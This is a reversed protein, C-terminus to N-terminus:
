TNDSISDGNIIIGNSAYWNVTTLMALNARPRLAKYYFWCKNMTASKFSWNILAVTTVGVTTVIRRCESQINM